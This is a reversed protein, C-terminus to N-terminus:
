RERVDSDGGIEVFVSRGITPHMREICNIVRDTGDETIKLTPVRDADIGFFSNGIVNHETFVEENNSDVEVKYYTITELTIIASSADEIILPEDRVEPDTTKKTTDCSLFFFLLVSLFLYNLKM